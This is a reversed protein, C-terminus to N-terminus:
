DWYASKYQIYARIKDTYSDFYDNFKSDLIFDNGDLINLEFETNDLETNDVYNYGDEPHMTAIPENNICVWLLYRKDKTYNYEYNILNFVENMNKAEKSFEGLFGDTSCEYDFELELTKFKPSSTLRKIFKALEIAEGKKLQIIKNFDFDNKVEWKNSENKIFYLEEVEDIGGVEGLFEKNEENSEIDNLFNNLDNYINQDDLSGEFHHGKSLDYACDLIFKKNKKNTKTVKKEKKDENYFYKGCDKCKYRQGREFTGAKQYSESSCRTCKIFMM